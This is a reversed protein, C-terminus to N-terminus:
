RMRTDLALRDGVEMEVVGKMMDKFAKLENMGKTMIEPKSGDQVRISAQLIWTGSPDLPKPSTLDLPSQSQALPDITEPLRLPRYLLILINQYTM